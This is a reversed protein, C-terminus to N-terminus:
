IEKGHAFGAGLCDVSLQWRAQFTNLFACEVEAWLGLPRIGIPSSSSLGTSADWVALMRDVLDAPVAVNGDIMAILEAQAAIWGKEINDLKPNASVRARGILLKAKVDPSAAIRQRLSALRPEDDDFACFLLEFNPYRIDFASLATEIESQELRAISIILSVLPRRQTDGDIRSASIVRLRRATVLATAFHLMCATTLIAALPAAAM